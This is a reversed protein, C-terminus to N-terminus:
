PAVSTTFVDTPNATIGSNAQVFLPRFSTGASALGEYDGVFFGRAFPATLMDLRAPLMPKM